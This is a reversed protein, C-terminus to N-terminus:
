QEILLEELINMDESILQVLNKGYKNKLIKFKQVFVEFDILFLDIYNTIIEDIYDVNENLLFTIINKMNEEDIKTLVELQFKELIEDIDIGQM